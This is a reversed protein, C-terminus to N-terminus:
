RASDVYVRRLRVGTPRLWGRLAGSIRVGLSQWYWTTYQRQGYIFRIFLDWQMGLGDLNSQNAICGHANM